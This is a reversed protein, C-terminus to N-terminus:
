GDEKVGFVRDDELYAHQLASQKKDGKRTPCRVVCITGRKRDRQLYFYGRKGRIESRHSYVFWWFLYKPWGLCIAVEGCQSSRFNSYNRSTEANLRIVENQIYQYQINTNQCKGRFCATLEGCQFSQFLMMKTRLFM